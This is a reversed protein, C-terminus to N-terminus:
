ARIPFVHVGTEASNTSTRSLGTPSGDLLTGPQRSGPLELFTGPQGTGKTYGVAASTGGRGGTGGSLDGTEWQLQTYRLVIDFAGPAVDGRDVIFLQFANLLDDHQAFYGVHDYDVCFAPRGGVTGSGFRIPHSAAGRTDVDAFWAAVMPSDLTALPQPTFTSRPGDFTVNGNNNVWLSTFQRGFFNLTFPLTIEPSSEDDNPAVETAHCALDLQGGDVQFEYGGTFGGADFVRLLYHGSELLGTVGVSGCGDGRTRGVLRGSPAFLSISFTGSGTCSAPTAIHISDGARLDIGYVDVGFRTDLSGSVRQGLTIDATNEVHAGLGALDVSQRLRNAVVADDDAFSADGSLGVDLICQELGAGPRLGKARCTQEAQQRVDAPLAALFGGDPPEVPLVADPPLVSRFLSGPGQVRWSEGFVGYLQQPDLVDHVVRGDRATLDNSPDRDANGLLGRVKAWRAPTLIVFANDGVWRGADLETGDPWRVVAGRVTTFTLTAGGPLSTRTGAALTVPQGDLTAVPPDHRRSTTDDGFAIVSTGVRAAVGRNYSGASPGTPLALRQFRGQVLFDDTTSEALIYDGAGLFPLNGSDFTIVHPDGYSGGPGPDRPGPDPGTGGDPPGGGPGPGVGGPPLGGDDPPTDPDCEDGAGDGDRDAQSPNALGPCNDLRFSAGAWPQSDPTGDGDPDNNFAATVDRTDPLPLPGTNLPVKIEFPIPRGYFGGGPLPTAELRSLPITANLEIGAGPDGDCLDVADQVTLTLTAVMDVDTIVGQSDATPEFRLQGSFSRDDGLTVGAITVGGVSGAINGPVSFIHNYDIPVGQGIPDFDSLPRITPSDPASLVPPSATVAREVQDLTDQYAAVTADAQQFQLLADGGTLTERVPVPVGGDIFEGWVSASTPGMAGFLFPLLAVRLYTRARDADAASAFPTCYAAPGGWQNFVGPEPELRVQEGHVDSLRVVLKRDVVRSPLTTATMGDSAVGVVRLGAPDLGFAAPDLTITIPHAFRLGSPSVDVLPVGFLDPVGTPVLSTLNIDTDRRVANPPIDVRWGPGSFTGGARGVRVAAALRQNAAAGAAGTGGNVEGVLVGPLRGAARISVALQGDPLGALTYRGNADTQAHRSGFSVTAGPVPQQDAADVVTGTLQGAPANLRQRVTFRTTARQREAFASVSLRNGHDPRLPVEVSFAGDARAFVGVPVAGGDVRVQARAFTKGTLTVSGRDIEDPATVRLHKGGYAHSREPEPRPAAAVAVPTFVVSVAVGVAVVLRQFHRLRGTGSSAM